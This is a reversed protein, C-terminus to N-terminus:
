DRQSDRPLQAVHGTAATSGSVEGPAFGERHSEGIGVEFRESEQGQDFRALTVERVATYPGTRVTTHSRRLRSAGRLGSRFHPRVKTKDRFALTPCPIMSSTAVLRPPRREGLDLRATRRRRHPRPGGCSTIHHLASPNLCYSFPNAPMSNKSL